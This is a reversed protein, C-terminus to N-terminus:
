HAHVQASGNGAMAAVKAAAADAVAHAEVHATAETREEVLEAATAQLKSQAFSSLPLDKVVSWEGNTITVPVSFMLDAPIGYHKGDSMVAMSVFEGPRTGVFWDRIHDATAKAASMASSLKRAAIIAGGRLSVTKIFAGELFDRAGASSGGLAQEIPVRTGDAALVYGHDVCPYQTNSHNGWVAVNRVADAPVGAKIALLSRARNEDLRTLASFNRSPISPAYHAAILANTNAPNGVVVVRVSKKAVLNLAEGQQKFIGVNAKLLDKRQMGERRPMAGLMILWDIDRFAVLPDTTPVIGVLLSHACDELEMVVGKLADLAPEIDLLHLIIPQNPGYVQGSAIMHLLSYAIQGAAGTVAVRLPECQANTPTTPILPM